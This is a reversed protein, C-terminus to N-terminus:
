RDVGGAQGPGRAGAPDESKQGYRCVRMLDAKHSDNTEPLVSAELFQAIKEHLEIRRGRLLSGYATDQVLAHKFTYTANPPAGRVTALSAGVIAELASALASNDMDTVHSVLDYDFTRGIVAGVEAVEKATGLRDLRAELSDQLTTPVEITTGADTARELVSKTLEEIFLPVGDTQTAIRDRLEEAIGFEKAIKEVMLACDRRELRSLMMPTVRPRGVWPADFEPRYTIVMLVAAEPVREVTMELLELTTPDIWHADEFVFLVPRQEALGVLQDELANLTLEKQRQPSFELAPYRDDAPISLLPAIFPATDKVPKSSNALAAELKDLKVNPSDSPEFGAGRELQEIIPYFASNTHYPSCQYLLRFHSEAILEDQLAQALRSKGIGPEGSILVVQGEGKKAREWRRMLTDLEEKRGILETLQEGRTAQFRSESTGARLVRWASVQNSFGKLDQAGLDMTEFM